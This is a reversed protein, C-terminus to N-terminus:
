AGGSTGASAYLKKLAQLNGGKLPLHGSEVESASLNKWRPEWDGCFWLTIRCISLNVFLTLVCLTLSLSPRQSMEAGSAGEATVVSVLARCPRRLPQSGRM